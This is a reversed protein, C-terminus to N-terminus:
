PGRAKRQAELTDLRQELRRAKAEIRVLSAALLAFLGLFALLFSTADTM